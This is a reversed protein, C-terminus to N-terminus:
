VIHNQGTKLKLYALKKEHAFFKSMIKCKLIM